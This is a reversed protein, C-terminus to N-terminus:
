KGDATKELNKIYSYYEFVSVEKQNLKFGMHKEVAIAADMYSGGMTRNKIEELEVHMVDIFTQLFEDNNLVKDIEALEIEVLKELYEKYSKSVGFIRIFDSYINDFIEASHITLKKDEKLLFKLDKKEHIM